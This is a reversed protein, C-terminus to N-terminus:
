FILILVYEQSCFSFFFKSMTFEKTNFSINEGFFHIKLFSGKSPEMYILVEDIITSFNPSHSFLSPDAMTIIHFVPFELSTVQLYQSNYSLRLNIQRLHTPFVKPDIHCLRQPPWHPALTSNSGVRCQLGAHSLFHDGSFQEENNGHSHKTDCQCAESEGCVLVCVWVHSTQLNNTCVM